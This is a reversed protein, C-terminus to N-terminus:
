TFAFDLSSRSATVVVTSIHLDIQLYKLWKLVGRRTGSDDGRGLQFPINVKRLRPPMDNNIDEGGKCLVRYM